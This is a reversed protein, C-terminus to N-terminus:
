KKKKGGKGKKGKKGKKGGGSAAKRSLYGRWLAQVRTAAWLNREEEARRLKEMEIRMRAQWACPPPHACSAPFRDFAHTLQAALHPPCAMPDFLAVLACYSARRVEEERRAKEEMEKSYRESYDSLKVLDEARSAKLQELIKEQEEIDQDYKQM